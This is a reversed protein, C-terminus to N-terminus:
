KRSNNKTRLAKKKKILNGDAMYKEFANRLRPHRFLFHIAPSKSKSVMVWKGDHSTISINQIHPNENSKVTYNPVKDAFRRTLELHELYEPYTYYINDECFTKALSLAVPHKEFEEKTLIPVEDILPSTRTCTRAVDRSLLTAQIIRAEDDVSLNYRSLINKLLDDSITHLPLTPLIEKRIGKEKVNESLFDFFENFRNKKYIGMLPLAHSFFTEMRKKSYALEKKNRTMYYRCVNESQPLCEGSFAVDESYFEMHNFINTSVNELYYPNIQGTLYFPIWIRIGNLLDELPINVNHIFNIPINRNVLLAITSIFRHLNEENSFYQSISADLYIYVPERSTSYLVQRLLDSTMENCGDESFYTKSIPLTIPDLSFNKNEFESTIDFTDLNFEDILTVFENIIDSYDMQSLAIPHNSCLWQSVVEVFEEEKTLEMMPKQILTSLQLKDTDRRYTKFLYRGINKSFAFVDAPHRQATRIRSIYSPDFSLYKAMSSININMTTILQSFKDSFIEYNIENSSLTKFFSNEIEDISGLHVNKQLSLDKVGAALKSITTGNSNPIRLGNRYRSIVAASLGTAVSLEKATCHLLKIYQNLQENFEM